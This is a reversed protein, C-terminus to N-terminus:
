GKLGSTAIGEVFVKQSAYFVLLIPIISVVAGAMMMPWNSSYQTQLFSLGATLPMKEITDIYILPSLLDNWSTIFTFVGLTTLAPKAL